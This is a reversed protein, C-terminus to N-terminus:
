RRSMRITIMHRFGPFQVEGNIQGIRVRAFNGDGHTQYHFPMPFTPVFNHRQRGLCIRGSTNGKPRIKHIQALVRQQQLGLFVALHSRCHANRYVDSSPATVAAM